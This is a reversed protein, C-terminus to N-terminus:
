RSRGGRRRSAVWRPRAALYATLAPRSVLGHRLLLDLGVVAEIRDAFRAIDFATRVPATYRRWRRTVADGPGLRSHWAEIDGRHRLTAHPPITVPVRLPTGHRDEGDLEAVGALWAAAWGSLAGAPPPVTAVAAIRQGVTTGGTSLRHVGHLQRTWAPGALERRRVGAARLDRTRTPRTLLRAPLPVPQTM